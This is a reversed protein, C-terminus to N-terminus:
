VGCGAAHRRGSVQLRGLGQQQFLAGVTHAREPSDARSSTLGGGGSSRNLRKPPSSVNLSPTCPTPLNPTWPPHFLLNPHTHSSHEPGGACKHFPGTRPGNAICIRLRAPESKPFFLRMLPQCPAPRQQHCIDNGNQNKVGKIKKLRRRRLFLFFFVKGGRM